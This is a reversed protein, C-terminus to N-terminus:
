ASTMYVPLFLPGFGGLALVSFWLPDSTQLQIPRNDFFGCCSAGRHTLVSIVAHTPLPLALSCSLSCSAVASLWRLDSGSASSLAKLASLQPRTEVPWPSPTWSDPCCSPELNLLRVAGGRAQSPFTQASRCTFFCPPSLLFAVPAWFLFYRSRPEILPLRPCKLRSWLSYDHSCIGCSSSEVSRVSLSFMWVSSQVYVIETNLFMDICYMNMHTCYLIVATHLKYACGVFVSSPSNLHGALCRPVILRGSSGWVVSLATTEPSNSARKRDADEERSM